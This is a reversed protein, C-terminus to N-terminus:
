WDRLVADGALKRKFDRRERARWAGEFLKCGKEMFMITDNVRYEGRQNIDEIIEKLIKKIFFHHGNVGELNFGRFVHVPAPKDFYHSDSVVAKRMENTWDGMFYSRDEGFIYYYDCM